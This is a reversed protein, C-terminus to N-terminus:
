TPSQLRKAQAGYKYQLLGTARHQPVKTVDPDSFSLNNCPMDTLLSKTLLIKTGWIYCCLFALPNSHNQSSGHSSALGVDCLTNFRTFRFIAFIGACSNCTPSFKRNWLIRISNLALLWSMPSNPQDQNCLLLSIVSHGAGAHLIQM